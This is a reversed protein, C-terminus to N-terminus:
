ICFWLLIIYCLVPFPVGEEEWTHTQTWIIHSCPHWLVIDPLPKLKGGEKVCPRKNRILKPWDLPSSLKLSERTEVEKGFAGPDSKVECLQQSGLGIGGAQITLTSHRSGAVQCAPHLEESTSIKLFWRRINIKQWTNKPKIKVKKKKQLDESAFCSIFSM